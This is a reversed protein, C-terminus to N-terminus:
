DLLPLHRAAPLGESEAGNSSDPHAIEEAPPVPSPLEHNWADSNPDIKGAVSRELEAFARRLAAIQDLERTRAAIYDSSTQLVLLYSAGGSELARESVATAERLAPVIQERVIALNQEAQKLQTAATRVEQVIQDRIADRNYRAQMLEAQARAIGGQNRNFIPFDLRLGPGIEFGKQGKQNADVAADVRWFLWRSLEARQASSAVAWEAARMDPRNVLARAILDENDLTTLLPPTLLDARALEMSAPLGMLAALRASAVPINLQAIGAAAQANLADIRATTAELESIEGRELRRQTLEAINQRLSVTENALDAQATALALDTYALRVDRVFNLGTQMLTNAVRQYDREAAEVRRPRLLFTELPVFLTWEWEKVGVPIFTHFQPNTLLRSQIVDGTAIGGQMLAARFAANNALAVTIAEDENVSDTLIVSPPLQFECPCATTSVSESAFCQVVTPVSPPPCSSPQTSRCGLATIGYVCGLIVCCSVRRIAVSSLLANVPTLNIRESM